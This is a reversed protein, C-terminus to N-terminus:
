SKFETEREKTKRDVRMQGLDDDDGFLIRLTHPNGVNSFVNNDCINKKHFEREAGIFLGFAL